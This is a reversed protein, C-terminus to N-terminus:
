FEDPPGSVRVQHVRVFSFAPENATLSPMAASGSMISTYSKGNETWLNLNISGNQVADCIAFLAPQQTLVTRATMKKFVQRRGTTARCIGGSSFSSGFRCDAPVCTADAVLNLRDHKMMANENHFLVKASFVPRTEEYLFFHLGNRISLIRYIFYCAPMGAMGHLMVPIICM